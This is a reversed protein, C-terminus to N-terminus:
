RSRRREIAERVDYIVAAVVYIALAAIFILTCGSM